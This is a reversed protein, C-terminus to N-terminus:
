VLVSPEADAPFAAVVDVLREQADGAAQDAELLEL